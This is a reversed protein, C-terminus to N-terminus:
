SLPSRFSLTPSNVPAWQCPSRPIDASVDRVATGHAALPRRSPPFSVASPINISFPADLSSDIILGITIIIIIIFSHLHEARWCSTLSYHKQLMNGLRIAERAANNAPKRTNSDYADLAAQM